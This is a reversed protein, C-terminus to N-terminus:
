HPTARNRATEGLMLFPEDLEKEITKGIAGEDTEAIADLLLKGQGHFVHGKQQDGLEIPIALANESIEVIGREAQWLTTTETVKSIPSGLQFERWTM